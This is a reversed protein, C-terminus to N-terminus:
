KCRDLSSSTSAILGKKFIDSSESYDPKIGMDFSSICRDMEMDDDSSHQYPNLQKEVDLVTFLGIASSHKYADYFQEIMMDVQPTVRFLTLDIGQHAFEIAQQKPDLGTPDGRPYRDGLTIPHYDTGHAPADTVFFITKVDGQWDLESTKKFAGAVDEPVDNGGLARILSIKNRVSEIDFTFPIVIFQEEDEYDRYGIFSLRFECSPYMSRLADFADLVSDRANRIYSNMSGTIDMLICVDVLKPQNKKIEGPQMDM